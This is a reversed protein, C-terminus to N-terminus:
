KGHTGKRAQLRGDTRNAQVLKLERHPCGLNKRTPSLEGSGSEPTLPLIREVECPRARFCQV